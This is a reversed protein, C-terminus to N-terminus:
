DEQYIKIKYFLYTKEKFIENNYVTFLTFVAVSLLYGAYLCM